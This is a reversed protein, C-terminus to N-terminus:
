ILPARVHGTLHISILPRRAARLSLAALTTGLCGCVGAFVIGARLNIAPSSYGMLEYIAAIGLPITAGGVFGWLAFRRPSLAALTRKREGILVTMAFIFGIAAGGLGWRVASDIAFRLFAKLEFSPLMRFAFLPLLGALGAVAFAVAWTAMTGVIGRLRKLSM